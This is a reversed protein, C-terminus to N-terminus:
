GDGTGGESYGEGRTGESYGNDTGDKGYSGLLRRKNRRQTLRVVHLPIDCLVNHRDGSIRLSWCGAGERGVFAM